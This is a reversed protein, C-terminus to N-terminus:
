RGKTRRLQDILVRITERSPADLKKLDRFMAIIEPDETPDDPNEGVFTSISVGFHDALKSLLELSPNRSTGRELEWIHAKSAGISEAVQQLSQRKLIRLDKLKSGLSM